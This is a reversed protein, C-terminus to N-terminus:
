FFATLGLIGFEGDGSVAGAGAAGSNPSSYDAGCNRM